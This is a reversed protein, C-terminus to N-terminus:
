CARRTPRMSGDAGRPVPPRQSRKAERKASREMMEERHAEVFSLLEGWELTGSGDADIARLFSQDVSHFGYAALLMKINALELHVDELIASGQPDSAMFAQKLQEIFVATLEPPENPNITAAVVALTPADADAAASAEVAPIPPPPAVAIAVAADTAAATPTAASLESMKNFWVRFEEPTVVGDGDTDIELLMQM